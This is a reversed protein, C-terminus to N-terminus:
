GIRTVRTTMTSGVPAFERKIRKMQEIEIETGDYSEIITETATETVIVLNLM